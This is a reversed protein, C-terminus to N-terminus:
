SATGEEPTSPEESHAGDSTDAPVPGSTGPNEKESQVREVFLQTSEPIQMLADAIADANINAPSNQMLNRLPEFRESLVQLANRLTEGIRDDVPGILEAVMAKGDEPAFGHRKALPALLRALQKRDLKGSRRMFEELLMDQILSVDTGGEVLDAVTQEFTTVPLGSIIQVSRSPYRRTRLRLDPRQTQRRRPTSFRYPEPVFDGVGLMWAASELCVVAEDPVKRLREEATRKPDISLWAARIGEFGDSPVGADRYVGQALREIVGDREMRSLDLRSVGLVKAQATTVLGWQGATLSALKAVKNM